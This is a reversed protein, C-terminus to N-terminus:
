LCRRGGFQTVLKRKEEAMFRMSDIFRAADQLSSFEIKAGGVTVKAGGSSSFSVSANVDKAGVRISAQFPETARLPESRVSPNVLAELTRAPSQQSLPATPDPGIPRTIERKAGAARLQEQSIPGIAVGSESELVPIQRIPSSKASTAMDKVVFTEEKGAIPMTLWDGKRFEQMREADVIADPRIAIAKKLKSRVQAEIPDVGLVDTSVPVRIGRSVADDLTQNVFSNYREVQKESLGYARGLVEHEGVDLGSYTRTTPDLVGSLSINKAALQSVQQDLETNGRTFVVEATGQPSVALRVNEFGAGGLAQMTDHADVLTRLNEVSGVARDGVLPKVAALQISTSPDLARNTSQLLSEAASRRLEFEQEQVTLNTDFDPRLRHVDARRIAQDAAVRSRLISIAEERTPTPGVGELRMLEKLQSAEQSTRPERLASRSVIGKGGRLIAQNGRISDVIVAGENDTVMGMPLTIPETGVFGNAGLREDGLVELLMSESKTTTATPAERVGREANAIAADVEARRAREAIEVELSGQQLRSEIDARQQRELRRINIIRQEAAQQEQSRRGRVEELREADEVRQRIIDGQQQARDLRVQQEVLDREGALSENPLGVGLDTSEEMRARQQEAYDIGQQRVRENAAERAIDVQAQAGARRETAFHEPPTFGERNFRAIHEAREAEVGALRETERAVGAAQFDRLRQMDTAIQRLRQASESQRGESARLMLGLDESTLVEPNSRAANLRSFFGERSASDEGFTKMAERAIRQNTAKGVAPELLEGLRGRVAAWGGEAVGGLVGFGLAGTAVRVGAETVSSPPTTVLKGAEYLTGIAAERLFVNSLLSAGELATGALLAPAGYSIALASAGLIALDEGAQIFGGYKRSAEEGFVKTALPSGSVNRNYVYQEVIPGAFPLFGAAKEVLGKPRYEANAFSIMEQQKDPSLGNFKEGYMSSLHESIVQSQQEPQLTSFRADSIDKILNDLTSM